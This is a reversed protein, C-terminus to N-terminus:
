CPLYIYICECLLSNLLNCYLVVCGRSGKTHAVMLNCKVISSFVVLIINEIELLTVVYSNNMFAIIYM